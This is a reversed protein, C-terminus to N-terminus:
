CISSKSKNTQVKNSKLNNAADKVKLFKSMVTGYWVKKHPTVNFPNYISASLLTYITAGM